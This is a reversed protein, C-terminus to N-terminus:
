SNPMLDLTWLLIFKTIIIIPVNGHNKLKHGVLAWAAKVSEIMEQYEKKIMELICFSLIMIFTILHPLSFECYLIIAVALM